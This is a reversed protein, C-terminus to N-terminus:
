SPEILPCDKAEAPSCENEDVAENDLFEVGPGTIDDRRGVPVLQEGDFLDTDVGDAQRLSPQCLVAVVGLRTDGPARATPM